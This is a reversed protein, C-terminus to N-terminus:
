ARDDEEELKRGLYNYVGCKIVKMPLLACKIRMGSLEIGLMNIVEDRSIDKIEEIKRGKAHETLMEAAAQSIICGSGNFKVEEIKKDNNIKMEIQVIDGCSPNSDRYSITPNELTGFNKPNRWHELIIEQYLEESKM